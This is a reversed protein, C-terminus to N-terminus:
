VNRIRRTRWKFDMRIDYIRSSCRIRIISKRRRGSGGAKLWKSLNKHPLRITFGKDKLLSCSTNGNEWEQWGIKGNENM